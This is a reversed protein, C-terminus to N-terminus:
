VVLAEAHIAADNEKSDKDKEMERGREGKWKRGEEKERGHERNDCLWCKVMCIACSKCECLSVLHGQHSTQLLLDAM